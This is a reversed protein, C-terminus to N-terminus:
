KRYVWNNGLYIDGSQMTDGMNNQISSLREELTTKFCNKRYFLLYYIRKIM